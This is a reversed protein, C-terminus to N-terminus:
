VKPKSFLRVRTVQDPLMTSEVQDYLMSVYKAYEFLWSPKSPM